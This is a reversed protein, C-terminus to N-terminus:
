CLPLGAMFQGKVKLDVMFQGKVKLDGSEGGLVSALVVVNSHSLGSHPTSSPSALSTGNGAVLSSDLASDGGLGSAGSVNFFDFGGDGSLSDGAPLAFQGLFPILCTTRKSGELGECDTNITDCVLVSGSYMLSSNATYSSSDKRYLQMGGTGNHHNPGSPLTCLLNIM